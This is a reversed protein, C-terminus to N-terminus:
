DGADHHGKTLPILKIPMREHVLWRGEWCGQTDCKLRCTEEGNGILVLAVADRDQEVYWCEECGARGEGIKGCPLFEIPRSDHGVRVYSYRRQALISKAARDEVENFNWDCGLTGDWMEKLDKLLELCEEERRFDRIRENPSNLSWKAMNRHQFIRRGQFDHQCMAGPLGCIPFPIMAYEQDLMRWSMHFTEKDGHIHLYYFDSYENLHMTLQLARWCRQKDVVIQGSEFEPEHRYQVECIKWIERSPDLRGYDPWFIAGTKKYQPTEFLFAPDVIPTNDADLLLVEHFKSHLIAYPKLEWGALRRVPHTKRVTQANVCTVGLPEFIERINKDMEFRTTQWLEVPLSCGCKRLMNICVWACTLYRSGGGCIVIGRDHYAELPYPPVRELFANATAKANQADLFNPLYSYIQPVPDTSQLEEKLLEYAPKKICWFGVPNREIVVGYESAFREIDRELAEAEVGIMRGGAKLKPYWGALLDPVTVSSDGSIFIFSLSHDEVLAPVEAPARDVIYRRREFALTAAIAEAKLRSLRGADKPYAGEQFSAGQDDNATWNGIMYMSLDPHRSLIITANEGNGTGIEAGVFEGVDIRSVFDALQQSAHPVLAIADTAYQGVFSGRWTGNDQLTLEATVAHRDTFLLVIEAGQRCIYWYRELWMCGIGITGDSRFEITRPPHEGVVYQYFKGALPSSAPEDVSWGEANPRINAPTFEKHSAGAAHVAILPIRKWIPCDFSSLSNFRRDLFLLPVDFRARAANLIGQELLPSPREFLCHKAYALVHAHHRRNLVMLGANFYHDPSIGFLQSDAQIHPEFWFDRVCVIEPRDAYRTPDWPHVFCLDADFLLVDDDAVYDFVALKLITPLPLRSHRFEDLGLIIVKLGTQHRASAAATEARQRWATGIGITVGIM